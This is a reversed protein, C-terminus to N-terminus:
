LHTKVSSQTGQHGRGPERKRRVDNGNMESEKRNGERWRSQRRGIERPQGLGIKSRERAKRMTEANEAKQGKQTRGQNEQRMHGSWKEGNEKKQDM